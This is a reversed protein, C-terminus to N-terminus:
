VTGHLGEFAARVPPVHRSAAVFAEIDTQNYRVPSKRGHGMKVYAPGIGRCRWSRLTAPAIGLLSAAQKENLLAAVKCVPPCVTEAIAM